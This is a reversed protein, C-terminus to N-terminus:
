PKAVISIFMTKTVVINGIDDTDEGSWVLEGNAEIGADKLWLCLWKMLVEYDYFKEEGDVSNRRPKGNSGMAYLCQHRHNKPRTGTM